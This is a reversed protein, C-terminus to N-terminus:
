STVNGQQLAQAEANNLVSAMSTGGSVPASGASTADGSSSGQSIGVDAVLKSLAQVGQVFDQAFGQSWNERLIAEVDAIVHPAGGVAHLLVNLLITNLM